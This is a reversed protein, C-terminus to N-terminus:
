KSAGQREATKKRLWHWATFVVDQDWSEPDQEAKDTIWRLYGEPIEEWLEGRHKNGFNCKALLVPEDSWLLLEPITTDRLLERLIHATVFTDPGARHPPMCRAEDLDAFGLWYRLAQNNYAPSQPWARMACKYTCIWPASIALPGLMQQDFRANHAVVYDPKRNDFWSDHALLRAAHSMGAVMADTIHHVASAEPPIPMGPDTLTHFTDLIEVRDGDLVADTWAIECIGCPAPPLGTTETDICRFRTM